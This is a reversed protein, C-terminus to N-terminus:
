RCGKRKKEARACVRCLRQEVSDDIQAVGALSASRRLHAEIAARATEFHEVLLDEIHQSSVVDAAVLLAVLRHAIQEREAPSGARLGIECALISLGVDRESTLSRICPWIRRLDGATALIRLASRRRRRSSEGEREDSPLRLTAAEILAPEAVRGLAALAREAERRSADEELADILVPISEARAFMGLAAIVGPLARSEALRLLLRFTREDPRRALARAAAGIVADDGLREVPDTVHREASLFEFLVDWAGLAVLADIARCRVQFLGSPERQFLLRRLEPIAEPGYRTIESVAQDGDHLSKLKDLVQQIDQPGAIHPHPHM